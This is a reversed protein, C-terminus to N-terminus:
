CQNTGLSVVKAAINMLKASWVKARSQVSYEEINVREAKCWEMDIYSHLNM